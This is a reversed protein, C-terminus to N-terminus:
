VVGVAHGVSNLEGMARWTHVRMGQRKGSDVGGM